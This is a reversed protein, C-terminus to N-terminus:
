EIRTWILIVGCPAVGKNYEPPISAAGRYIELGEVDNPMVADVNFRYTLAGDVFFQVPCDRGANGRMTTTTGFPGRDINVGPLRRLVDSLHRTRDANIDDRTVFTGIGVKLRDYFGRSVLVNSRARVRVETLEIPKVPMQYQVRTMRGPNFSLYEATTAYGLYQTEVLHTGPPLGTVRLYGHQDTIGGINLGKVVVRAGPLARGDEAATVTIELTSSGATQAFAEAAGATLALLALLAAPGTLGIRVPERPVPQRHIRM